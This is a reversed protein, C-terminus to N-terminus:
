GHLKPRPGRQLAGRKRDQTITFNCVPLSSVLSSSCRYGQTQGTESKGKTAKLYLNTSNLLRLMQHAGPFCSHTGNAASPSNEKEKVNFMNKINKMWNKFILLANVCHTFVNSLCLLRALYVRRRGGRVGAASREEKLSSWHYQNRWGGPTNWVDTLLTMVVIEKGEGCM